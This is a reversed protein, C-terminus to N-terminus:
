DSLLDGLQCLGTTLGPRAEPTASIAVSNMRVSTLKWLVFFEVDFYQYERDQNQYTFCFGPWFKAAQRARCDMTLVLSGHSLAGRWAAHNGRPHLPHDSYEKLTRQQKGPGYVGSPCEVCWLPM